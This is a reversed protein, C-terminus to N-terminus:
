LKKPPGLVFNRISGNFAKIVNSNSSLKSSDQTIFKLTHRNRQLVYYVTVSSLYSLLEKLESVSM